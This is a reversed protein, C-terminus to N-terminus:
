AAYPNIRKSCNDMHWRKMPAIGGQKECHPCTVVAQKTGRVAQAALSQVRKMLEPTMHARLRGKTSESLKKRMSDPKKKGVQAKSIKEKSEPTHIKRGKISKSIAARAEASVSHGTLSKSIADKTEISHNFGSTGDGGDTQNILSCGANRFHAILFKEHQFAAEESLGVMAFHVTRGHKKYIARWHRGRAVSYARRGAGKGVYFVAGTDNRTHFYTYFQSVNRVSQEAGKEM